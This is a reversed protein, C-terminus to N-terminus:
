AGLSPQRRGTWWVLAACALTVAGAVVVGREFGAVLADPTPTGSPRAVLSVVTVGVAAGLYRATNNAGSGLGGQDPPVSAVAERGLAANLVGSGVGAVLLGPLLRAAPDDASLGLLLAIGAAVTVLSGSLRARGSVGEPIWRSALATVVSTASWALLLLAAGWADIGLAAGALGPLYSLLAIVGAGTGAAAVTVALFAPRRLLALDIMPHASTREVHAFAVLLGAGGVALAVVLPSAGGQRGEVLAALAATIGLGLTAMGPLDLPARARPPFDPVRRRAAVVLLVSALLLLGHVDRWDHAESLGASVVPGVAIGGGVSAGWLNTGRARSPGPETAAVILGLSSAIIAAGGLGQVVRSLVFTVVEPSLVALLSGLALALAGGVFTRRIGVDDAVRGATLLAAGLGVSMSSLIWTRGDAGTGLGAATANVTALPATFAVLTVFTGAAAVAVPRPTRAM